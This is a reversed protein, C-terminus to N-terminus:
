SPITSLSSFVFTYALSVFPSYIIRLYTNWNIPQKPTIRLNINSNTALISKNPMDFVVGNFTNTTSAALQTNGIMYVSSGDSALVLIKMKLPYFSSPNRVSNLTITNSSNSGSLYLSSFIVLEVQFSTLLSLTCQGSCVSTTSTTLFNSRSYPGWSDFQLQIVSGAEIIVTPSFQVTYVAPAGVM